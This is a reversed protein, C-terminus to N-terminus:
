CHLSGEDCHRYCATCALRSYLGTENLPQTLITALSISAKAEIRPFVTSWMITCVALSKSINQVSLQSSEGCKNKATISLVYKGSHVTSFVTGPTTSVERHVVTCNDFCQLLTFIYVEVNWGRCSPPDVLVTVDSTSGLAPSPWSM